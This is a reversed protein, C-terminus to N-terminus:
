LSINLYAGSKLKFLIYKRSKNEFRKKKKPFFNMNVINNSFYFKNSSNIQYLM